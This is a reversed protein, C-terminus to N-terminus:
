HFIRSTLQREDKSIGPPRKRWSQESIRMYSSDTILVVGYKASTREQRFRENYRAIESVSTVLYGVKKV